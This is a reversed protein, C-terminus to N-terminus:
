DKKHENYVKLFREIIEVYTERKYIRNEELIKAVDLLRQIIEDYTEREYLSNEKLRDATEKLISIMTKEPM